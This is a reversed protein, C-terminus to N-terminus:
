KNSGCGMCFIDKPSNEDGCNNCIWPQNNSSGDSATGFKSSINHSNTKRNSTPLGHKNKESNVASFPATVSKRVANQVFCM